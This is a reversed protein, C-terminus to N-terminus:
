AGLWGALASEFRARDWDGVKMRPLLFTDCGPAVVGPRTTCASAFKEDRVLTATEGSCSGYPYAFSTPPRGTLTEVCKKSARIEQTQAAPPLTALAAHTATHAGLDIQDFRDLAVAEERSVCLYSRRAAGGTGAWAAVRDLASRREGESMSMLRGHIQRFWDFRASAAGEKREFWVRDIERDAHDYRRAEGLSWRHIAEGTALELAEPLEPPALLLRELEDWWFERGTGINGTVLYITAPVDHHALLPAANELNDVYGDDFTVAVLPRAPQPGHIADVVQSLTAPM